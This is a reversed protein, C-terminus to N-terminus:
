SLKKIQNLLEQTMLRDPCLNMLIQQLYSGWDSRDEEWCLTLGLYADSDLFLRYKDCLEIYGKLFGMIRDKDSMM